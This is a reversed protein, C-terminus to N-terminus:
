SQVCVTISFSSDLDTVPDKGLLLKTPIATHSTTGDPQHEWTEECAMQVTGPATDLGGQAPLAQRGHPPGRGAFGDRGRRQAPPDAPQSRAGLCQDSGQGAEAGLQAGRGLREQGIEASAGEHLRQQATARSSALASDAPPNRHQAGILSATRATEGASRRLLRSQRDASATRIETLDEKDQLFVEDIIRGVVPAGVDAIREFQARQRASEALAAITRADGVIANLAPIAPGAATLLASLSHSFAGVASQVERDPKGEALTVLVTNYRDIVELADLRIAVTTDLDATSVYARPDYEPSYPAAAPQQASQVAQKNASVELSPPEACAALGLTAMCFLLPFRTM